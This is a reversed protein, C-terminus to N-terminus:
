STVVDKPYIFGNSFLRRVGGRVRYQLVGGACTSPQGPWQKGDCVIPQGMFSSVNRTTRLQRLITASTIAGKIERLINATDVTSSFTAQAFASSKYQPAHAKMRAAFVKLEEVKAKPADAAASRTWLDSATFVGEATQRNASIFATCGGAFVLGGYRLQRIAAILSTCDPEATSFFLADPRSALATTVIQTYDPNSPNYFVTDLKLGLKRAAPALATDVFVRALVNNLSIFTVADVQLRQAMLKLPAAGFAQVPAGFFFANASVFQAPGYGRHGLLPIRAATLIPLAADSGLDIGMLVATAKAQVFRNACDISAEPSGDTMCEVFRLQRGNIGDLKANVYLRAARAGAGFEPFAVPGREQNLFGIVVPSPSAGSAVPSGIALLCLGALALVAAPTRRRRSRPNM